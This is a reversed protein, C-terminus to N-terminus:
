EWLVIKGITEKSLMEQISQRIVIVAQEKDAATIIGKKFIMDVQGIKSEQQEVGELLSTPKSYPAPVYERM